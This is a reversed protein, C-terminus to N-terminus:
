AAAYPFCRGSPHWTRTLASCCTGLLMAAHDTAVRLRHGAAGDSTLWAHSMLVLAVVNSAILLTWAALSSTRPMSKRVSRWGPGQKERWRCRPVRRRVTGRTTGQAVLATDVVYGLHNASRATARASQQRSESLVSATHGSAAVAAAHPSPPPHAHVASRVVRLGGLALQENATHAASATRTTVPQGESPELECCAQASKFALRAFTLANCGVLLAFSIWFLAASSTPKHVDM